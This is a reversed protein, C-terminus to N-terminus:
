KSGRARIAAAIEDSTRKRRGKVSHFVLCGPNGDPCPIPMDHEIREDAIQACAEREAAAVDNNFETMTMLHKEAEALAAELEAIRQKMALEDMAIDAVEDATLM